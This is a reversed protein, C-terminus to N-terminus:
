PWIRAKAKLHLGNFRKSNHGRRESASGYSPPVGAQIDRGRIDGSSFGRPGGCGGTTAYETVLYNRHGVGLKVSWMVHVETAPLSSTSRGTLLLLSRCEPDTVPTTCNPDPVLMLHQHRGDISTRFVDQVNTRFTRGSHGDMSPRDPRLSLRGDTSARGPLGSTSRGRM